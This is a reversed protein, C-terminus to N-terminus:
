FIYSYIQEIFKFIQEPMIASVIIIASIVICLIYIKWTKIKLMGSYHKKFKNYLFNNNYLVIIGLTSFLTWVLLIMMKTYQSSYSKNFLDIFSSKISLRYRIIAKILLMFWLINIHVSALFSIYAIKVQGEDTKENKHKHNEWKANIVYIVWVINYFIPINIFLIYLGPISYKSDVFAIYTTIFFANIGWFFANPTAENIGKKIKNKRQPTTENIEKKVKNKQQYTSM